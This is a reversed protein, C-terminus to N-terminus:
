TLGIQEEIMADLKQKKILAIILSPFIYWRHSFHLNQCIGRECVRLKEVEFMVAPWVQSGSIHGSHYISLLLFSIRRACLIEM